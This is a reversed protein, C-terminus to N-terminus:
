KQSGRIEAIRCPDGGVSDLDNNPVYLTISHGDRKRPAGIIPADLRELWELAQRDRTVLPGSLGSGAVFAQFLRSPAPPWDGAGYYRGDYLRISITLSRTM